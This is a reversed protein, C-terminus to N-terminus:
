GNFVGEENKGGAPKTGHRRSGGFIRDQAVHSKVFVMLFLSKSLGFDTCPQLGISSPTTGAM